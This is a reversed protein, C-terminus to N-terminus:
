VICLCFHCFQFLTTTEKEERKSVFNFVTENCIFFNVVGIFCWLTVCLGTTQKNKKQSKESRVRQQTVTHTPQWIPLGQDDTKNPVRSNNDDSDDKTETMTTRRTWKRMMKGM